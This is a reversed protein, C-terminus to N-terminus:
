HGFVVCLYVWVVMCLNTYVLPLRYWHLWYVQQVNFYIIQLEQRRTRVSLGHRHGLISLFWCVKGELTVIAKDTIVSRKIHISNNICKQGLVCWRHLIYATLCVCSNALWLLPHKSDEVGIWVSRESLPTLFLVSFVYFFIYVFMVSNWAMKVRLFYDFWISFELGIPPVSVHVVVELGKFSLFLNIHKDSKLEADFVVGVGQKM